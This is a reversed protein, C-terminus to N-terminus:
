RQVKEIAQSVPLPFSILPRPPPSLIIFPHLHSKIFLSKIEKNVFEGEVKKKSCLLVTALFSM